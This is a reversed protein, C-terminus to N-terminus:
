NSKKSEDKYFVCIFTVGDRFSYFEKWNDDVFLSKFEESTAFASHHTADEIEQPDGDVMIIEQGLPISVVIFKKVKKKLRDIFVKPNYLHELNEIQIAVDCKPIRWKELNALVFKINDKQHKELYTCEYPQSHVYARGYLIKRYNRQQGIPLYEHVSGNRQQHVEAEAPKKSEAPTPVHQLCLNVM